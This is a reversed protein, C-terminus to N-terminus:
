VAGAADPQAQRRITTRYWQVYAVLEAKNLLLLCSAYALAGAGVVAPLRVLGGAGEMQTGVLFVACSMVATARAAPWLAGLYQRMTLGCSALAYRATLGFMTCPYAIVWVAAVGTVGWRSCVYFLPALIAATWVTAWMTLDPRGRAVLVQNLLPGVARLGAAIALLRLPGVASEWRPGLLVAVLDPAVLALGAGAPFTVLSVIETLRLVYRQLAERQNQVASFLAPAVRGFLEVVRELPVSALSWALTYAGLSAAGLTRGVITVDANSYTYWALSGAVVHWGFRVPAAISRWPRPVAFPCPRLISLTVTNALRGTVGALVLAWYGFGLLALTLATATRVVAELADALALGRFRMERTLVARPLVQFGSVFFTSSLVLIVSGIAPEGFFWAVPGSLAVSLACFITGLGVSLTNLSALQRPTLDRGQVVAPGLGFENVLQVLGVYVMAMGAIGYDAPTLIRAVVLTSLWSLVQTGWKAAGTWAIGRVASRDLDHIRTSQTDM